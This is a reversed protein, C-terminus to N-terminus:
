KNQNIFNNLSLLMCSSPACYDDESMVVGLLIFIDSDSKAFFYHLQWVITLLRCKAAARVVVVGYERGRGGGVIGVGIGGGGVRGGRCGCCCERAQPGV